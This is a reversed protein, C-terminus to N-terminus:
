EKRRSKRKTKPLIFGIMLFSLSSFVTVVLVFGDVVSERM